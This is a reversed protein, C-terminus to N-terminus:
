KDQTLMCAQQGKPHPVDGFKPMDNLGIKVLPPLNHESFVPVGPNESRGVARVHTLLFMHPMFKKRENQSLNHWLGIQYISDLFCSIYM